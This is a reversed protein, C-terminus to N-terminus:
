IHSSPLWMKKRSSTTDWGLHRLPIFSIHSISGYAFYEKKLRNVILKLWLIAKDGDNDQLTYSFM